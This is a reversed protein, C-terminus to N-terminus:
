PAPTTSYVATISGWGLVHDSSGAVLLAQYLAEPGAPFNASSPVNLMRDLAYVTFVYRHNYPAVGNPPCPGGYGPAGFDNNVQAGIPSAAASANLPLSRVTGPINYMGWHTFAATVDYAVVVFSRTGAPVGSLNLAPSQNGGTAGNVSCLNSGSPEYDNLMITPITKGAAFTPSSVTFPNPFPDAFAATSSAAIAMLAFAGLIFRRM